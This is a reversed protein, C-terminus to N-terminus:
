YRREVPSYSSILLIQFFNMGSSSRCTKSRPAYKATSTIGSLNATNDSFVNNQYSELVHLDAASILHWDASSCHHISTLIVRIVRSSQLHIPQLNLQHLVPFSPHLDPQGSMYRRMHTMVKIIATLQSQGSVLVEALSWVKSVTIEGQSILVSDDPMKVTV